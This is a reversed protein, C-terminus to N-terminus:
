LNEILFEENSIKQSFTKNSTSNRVDATPKQPSSACLKRSITQRHPIHRAEEGAM